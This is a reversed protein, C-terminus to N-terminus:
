IGDVYMISEAYYIKTESINASYLTDYSAFKANPTTMSMALPQLEDVSLFREKNVYVIMRDTGNLGAGDCWRCGEIRLDVGKTKAINNELLYTLISKSAVDSVKRSVLSAYVKNPILIHNPVADEDFGSNEWVSTIAQNFDELIEDPTKDAFLTSNNGGLSASTATVDPNNTLGFTGYTTFGVYVNRDMHKDYVLRVGDRLAKDLSRGIQDARQVDIWGLRLTRMFPHAKFLGRNFNVNIAPVGDSNTATISGDGDDTAGYEISDAVVSDVWGGGVNVKIDRPYTVSTLPKKIDVERKSLESILFAEGSAIGNADLHIRQPMVNGAVGGDYKVQNIYNM